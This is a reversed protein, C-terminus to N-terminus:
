EELEGTFFNRLYVVTDGSSGARSLVFYASKADSAYSTLIGNSWQAWDKIIMLGSISTGIKIIIWYRAVSYGLKSIM